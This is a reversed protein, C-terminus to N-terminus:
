FPSLSVINTPRCFPCGAYTQNTPPVKGMKYNWNDGGGSDDKAGIVDLISVNQLQSVWSPRSPFNTYNFRLTIDYDDM